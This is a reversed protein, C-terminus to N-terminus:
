ASPWVPHWRRSTISWGAGTAASPTMPRRTTWWCRTLLPHCRLCTPWQNAGNAFCRAVRRRDSSSLATPCHQPMSRKRNGRQWRFPLTTLSPNHSSPRKVKLMSPTGLYLCTPPRPAECSGRQGRPRTFARSRFGHRAAIPLTPLAVRGIANEKTSKQNPCARSM